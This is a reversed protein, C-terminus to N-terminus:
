RRRRVGALGAMALLSAASPGPILLANSIPAGVFVTPESPQGADTIGITIFSGNGGLATSDSSITFRAIWFEGSEGITERSGLDNQPPQRFWIGRLASGTLDVSNPIVRLLSVDADDFAFHTDFELAASSGYDAPDPNFFGSGLADQYLAGDFYLFEGDVAPNPGYGMNVGNIITGAEGTVFLDYTLWSGALGTSQSTVTNTSNDVQRWVVGTVPSGASALSALSAFGLVGPLFTKTM